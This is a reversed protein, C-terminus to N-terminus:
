HSRWRFAQPILLYSVLVPLTNSARIRWFAERYLSEPKVFSIESHFTATMVPPPANPRANASRACTSPM